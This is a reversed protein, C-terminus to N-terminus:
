PVCRYALAVLHRLQVDECRPGDAVATASGCAEVPGHRGFRAVALKGEGLRATPPANRGSAWEPQRRRDSVRREM